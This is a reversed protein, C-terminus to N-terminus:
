RGLLSAAAAVAADVDGDPPFLLSRGVMLGRV